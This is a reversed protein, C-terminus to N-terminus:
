IISFYKNIKSGNQSIKTGSLDMLFLGERNSPSPTTKLAFNIPTSATESALPSLIHWSAMCFSFTLFTKNSVQKVIYKKYEDM